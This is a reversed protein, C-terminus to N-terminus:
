FTNSGMPTPIPTQIPPRLDYRSAMSGSPAPPALSTGWDVGGALSAQPTDTPQCSLCTAPPVRRVERDGMELGRSLGGGGVM